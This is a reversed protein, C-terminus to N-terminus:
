PFAKAYNRLLYHVGMCWESHIHIVCHYKNYLMIVYVHKGFCSPESADSWQQNEKCERHSEGLFIYGDDCKFEIVSGPAHNTAEVFTKSGRAPTPIYPCMLVPLFFFRNINNDLDNQKLCM